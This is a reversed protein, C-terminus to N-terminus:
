HKQSLIPLDVPDLQESAEVSRYWSPIPLGGL